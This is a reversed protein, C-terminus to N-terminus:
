VETDPAKGPAGDPFMQLKIPRNVRASGGIAVEATRGVGFATKRPFLGIQRLFQFGMEGSKALIPRREVPWSGRFDFRFAAIAAARCQLAAAVGPSDLRSAHDVGLCSAPREDHRAKACPKVM